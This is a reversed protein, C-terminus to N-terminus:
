RLDRRGRDARLARLQRRWLQRRQSGRHGGRDRGELRQPGQGPPEDILIGALTILRAFREPRISNEADPAAGSGAAPGRRRAIKPAISFDGSHNSAIREVRSQVDDALESPALVRARPGLGLLWSILPASESFHTEFIVGKGPVAEGRKPARITGARSFHREVLWAIRESIWISANQPTQGFQWEAM